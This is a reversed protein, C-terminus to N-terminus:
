RQGIGLLSALLSFNNLARKQFISRFKALEQKIQKSNRWIQTFRTILTVEDIEDLKICWEKHGMEKFLSEVKPMYAIGLFPINNILSFISSHFREGIIANTCNMIGMIEKPCYEGKLLFIRKDGRLENMILNLGIRDDDGGSTQM